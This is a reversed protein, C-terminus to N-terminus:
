VKLIVAAHGGARRKVLVNAAIGKPLFTIVRCMQAQYRRGVHAIEATRIDENQHHIGSQTSRIVVSFLM